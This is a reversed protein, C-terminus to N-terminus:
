IKYFTAYYMIRLLGLITYLIVSQNDMVIMWKSKAISLAFCTFRSTHFTCFVIFWHVLSGLIVKDIESASFRGRGNILFEKLPTDWLNVKPICGQKLM